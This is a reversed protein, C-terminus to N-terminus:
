FQEPDRKPTSPVLFSVFKLLWHKKAQELDLLNSPEFTKKCKKRMNLYFKLYKLYLTSFLKPPLLGM